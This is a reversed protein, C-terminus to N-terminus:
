LFRLFILNLHNSNSNVEIIQQKEELPKDQFSKTEILNQIEQFFNELRQLESTFKTWHQNEQILDQSMEEISRLKENFDEQMQEFLSKLIQLNEYTSLNGSSILQICERNEDILKKLDAYSNKLHQFISFWFCIEFM